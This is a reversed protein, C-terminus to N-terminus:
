TKKDNGYKDSVKEIIGLIIIDSKCLFLLTLLSKIQINYLLRVYKNYLLKLLIFLSNVFNRKDVTQYYLYNISNKKM